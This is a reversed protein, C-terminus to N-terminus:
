HQALAKIMYPQAVLSETKLARILLGYCRVILRQGDHQLLGLIQCQVPKLPGVRHKPVQSLKGVLELVNLRQSDFAVRPM